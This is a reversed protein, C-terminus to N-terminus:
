SDAPEEPHQYPIRLSVTTGQGLTSKLGVSGDHAEVLHKVIALGLGTGGATRARGPDVRYFREFVRPVHEPPIGSGNDSVEVEWSAEAPIDRAKLTVLGGPPTHRLANGFLNTLIQRVAGPDAQIQLGSPVDVSL